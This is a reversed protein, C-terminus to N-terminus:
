GAESPFLARPDLRPDDPSPEAAPAAASVDGGQELLPDRLLVAAYASLLWTERAADVAGADHLYAPLAAVQEVSLGPLWIHRRRADARGQGAPYLVHAARDLALDLWRVLGAGDLLLDHVSGVAVDDVLTRIEWGRVDIMGPGLTRGQESLAVLATM